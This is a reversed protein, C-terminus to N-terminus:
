VKKVDFKICQQLFDNVKTTIIALKQRTIKLPNM